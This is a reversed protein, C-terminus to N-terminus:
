DTNGLLEDREDVTEVVASVKWGVGAGVLHAETRKGGSIGHFHEHSIIWPDDRGRTGISFAGGVKEGPRSVDVTGPHGSDHRRRRRPKAIAVGGPTQKPSRLRGQIDVAPAGFKDRIVAIPVNLIKRRRM